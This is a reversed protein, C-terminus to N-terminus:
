GCMWVRVRAGTIKALALALAEEPDPVQALLTKAADRFWPVVDRDIDQLVEIARGAAITAM